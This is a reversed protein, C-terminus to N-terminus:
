PAVGGDTITWSDGPDLNARATAAAGGGTYKSNGGDFTVGNNHSNAEWGILLADYNATSLTAGNFMQAANTLSQIDWGSLDQDFNFCNRFMRYMTTVGSVDSITVGGTLANCVHFMGECDTLNSSTTLNIASDLSICSVFMDDANQLSPMNWTLAQDFNSCNRFMNEANTVGTLDSITVGGTLATCGNFMSLTSTLSSSTTLSISSNLSVCDKFMEQVNATNPLNWNIVQDLNTCGNFVQISSTVGTLDSITVGGTLATCLAFVADFDDLASSTTLNINNNLATCNYFCNQLTTAASADWTLAQNFSTCDYFWNNMSMVNSVDWNKIDPSNLSTCARFMNAFGSSIENNLVVDSALSILNSCGYFNLARFQGTGFQDISTLKTKFVGDNVTFGECLGTITVTYSGASYSHTADVDNYTTVAGTASGDGYDIICDYNVGSVFPFTISETGVTISFVFPKDATKRQINRRRM